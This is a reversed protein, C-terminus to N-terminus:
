LHENEIRIINRYMSLFQVRWGAVTVTYTEGVRLDRYLDSSNFKLFLFADTNQFVENEDFIMYRSSEGQVVREKELVYIEVTEATNRYAFGVISVLVVITLIFGVILKTLSVNMLKDGLRDILKGM